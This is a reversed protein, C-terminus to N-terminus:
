WSASDAPETDGALQRYAGVQVGASFLALVGIVVMFILGGVLPIFASLLGVIGGIVGGGVVFILGLFFLQIRNGSTLQWSRELSEIIGADEIMVALPAFYLSVALFIGPAILFVTGISVAINTIIGVIFLVGITRALRRTHETTPVSDIDAYMARILVIHFVINVIVLIAAVGGSVAIPLDLVLPYAQAAQDTATSESALKMSLSQFSVMIALFVFVYAATLKAGGRTTLRNAGYSIAEGINLKSEM